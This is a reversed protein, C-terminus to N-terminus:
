QSDFDGPPSIGMDFAANVIDLYFLEETQGLDETNRYTIEKIINYQLTPKYTLANRLVYYSIAGIILSPKYDLGELTYIKSLFPDPELHFDM